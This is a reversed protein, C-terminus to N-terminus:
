RRAHRLSRDVAPGVPSLFAAKLDDDIALTTRM